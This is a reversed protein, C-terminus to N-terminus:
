YLGESYLRKDCGNREHNIQGARDAIAYAEVRSHYTGYNDIFGQEAKVPSIGLAKFTARMLKDHHRVGVIVLLEGNFETACAAAVIRAGAIAEFGAKLPPPGPPPAPRAAHKPMPNSQKKGM